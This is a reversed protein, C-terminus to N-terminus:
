KKKFELTVNTGEELVSEINMKINLEDVMKECIKLGLGMGKEGNVGSSPYVEAHQKLKKVMSESMGIGYDKISYFIKNGDQCVDIRITSNKNSFRISNQLLNIIIVSLMEADSRVYIPTLVKNEIILGKQSIMGEMILLTKKTIDCLDAYVFNIDIRKTKIKNWVVINDCMISLVESSYKIIKSFVLIKNRDYDNASNVLLSSFNLINFLPAKLDNNVISVLDSKSKNKSDMLYSEDTNKEIYHKKSYYAGILDAIDKFSAVYNRNITKNNVTLVGLLGYWKKDVFIPVFCLYNINYIEIFTKVLGYYDEAYGSIIEGKEFRDIYIDYGESEFSIEKLFDNDLYYKNGHASVSHTLKVNLGNENKYNKLIIANDIKYEEILKTLVLNTAGQQNELLIKGSYKLLKNIKLSSIKDEKDREESLLYSLINSIKKLYILSKEHFSVDQPYTFLLFGILEKKFLPLVLFYKQYEDNTKEIKKYVIENKELSEGCELFLNNIFLKNTYRYFFGDPLDEGYEFISNASLSLDCCSCKFLISSQAQLSEGLDKIIKILTVLPEDKSFEYIMQTCKEFIKSEKLERLYRM